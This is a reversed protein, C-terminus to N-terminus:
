GAHKQRTLHGEGFRYFFVTFKKFRILNKTQKGQELVPITDYIKAARSM